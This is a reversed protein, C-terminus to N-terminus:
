SIHSIEWKLLSKVRWSFFLLQASFALSALDICYISFGSSSFSQQFCHLQFVSMKPSECWAKWWFFTLIVWYSCLLSQAGKQFGHFPMPPGGLAWCREQLSKTLHKMYVHDENVKFLGQPVNPVLIGWVLGERRTYVWHRGFCGRHSVSTICGGQRWRPSRLLAWTKNVDKDQGSCCRRLATKTAQRSFVADSKSEAWIKM